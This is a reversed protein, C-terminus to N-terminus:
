HNQQRIVQILDWNDTYDQNYGMEGAVRYAENYDVARYRVDGKEDLVEFPRNPDAGNINGAYFILGGTIKEIDEDKIRMTEMDKM